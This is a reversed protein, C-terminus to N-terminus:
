QILKCLPRSRRAISNKRRESESKRGVLSSTSGTFCAFLPSRYIFLKLMAEAMALKKEPFSRLWRGASLCKWLTGPHSNFKISKQDRSCSVWKVNRGPWLPRPSAFFSRFVYFVNRRAQFIFKFRTLFAENLRHSSVEYNEKHPQRTPTPPEPHLIARLCMRNTIFREDWGAQEWESEASLAMKWEANCYFASWNFERRQRGCFLFSTFWVNFRFKKKNFLFSSSSSLPTFKNMTSDCIWKRFIENHECKGEPEKWHRCSTKTHAKNPQNFLWLIHHSTSCFHQSFNAHHSHQSVWWKFTFM